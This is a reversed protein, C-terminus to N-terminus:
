APTLQQPGRYRHRKGREATEDPERALVGTDLLPKLRQHLAPLKIRLREALEPATFPEGLDVAAELTERLVENGGLLEVKGEDLAALSMKNRDLVMNLTEHVDKNLGYVAVLRNTEGGALSGRVARVVEDLFPASAVDVGAFSIMLAPGELLRDHIERGVDRGLPRTSLVEGHANLVYIPFKLSM